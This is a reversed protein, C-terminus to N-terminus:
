IKEGVISRFIEDVISSNMNEYAEDLAKTKQAYEDHIKGIKADISEQHTKKIKLIEADADARLKEKLEIAEDYSDNLIKKQKDSAQSFREDAARDMKIIEDVIDM